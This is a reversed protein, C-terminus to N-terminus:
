SGEQVVSIESLSVCAVSWLSTSTVQLAEMFFRDAQEESTKKEDPTLEDLQDRYRQFKDGEKWGAKLAKRYSFYSRDAPCVGGM